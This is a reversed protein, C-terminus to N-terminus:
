SGHDKPIDDRHRCIKKAHAGIEIEGAALASMCSGSDGQEDRDRGIASHNCMFGGVRVCSMVRVINATSNMPPSMTPDSQIRFGNRGAIIQAAMIATAM